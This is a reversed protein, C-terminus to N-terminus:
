DLDEVHRVRDPREDFLVRRVQFLFLLGGEERPVHCAGRGDGSDRTGTFAPITAPLVGRPPGSSRVLRPLAKSRPSRSHPRESARAFRPSERSLGIQTSAWASATARTIASCRWFFRTSAIRCSSTGNTETTTVTRVGRSTGISTRSTSAKPSRARRRP